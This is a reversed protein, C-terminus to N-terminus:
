KELRPLDKLFYGRLFLSRSPLVYPIKSNKTEERNNENNEQSRLAVRQSPRDTATVPTSPRKM